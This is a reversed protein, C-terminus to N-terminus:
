KIKTLAEIKEILLPNNHLKLIVDQEVPDHIMEDLAAKIGEESQDLAIEKCVNYTDVEINLGTILLQKVIYWLDEDLEIKVKEM